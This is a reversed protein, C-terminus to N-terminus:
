DLEGRTELLEARGTKAVADEPHQSIVENYAALAADLEGRTKLVEARGNKAVADEPHQGIVEDYIALAENLEGKAKLVEAQGKQAIVGAGFVNAEQFARLAEDLNHMNLLADGHQAWSWGDDPAEGISRETLELQLPFMGLEKAEMALDCLSKAL